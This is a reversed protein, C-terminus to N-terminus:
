KKEIERRARGAKESEKLRDKLYFSFSKWISRKKVIVENRKKARSYKRALYICNWMTRQIKYYVRKRQKELGESTASPDRKRNLGDTSGRSECSAKKTHPSPHALNYATFTQNERKPSHWCDNVLAWILWNKLPLKM